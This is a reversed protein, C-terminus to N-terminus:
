EIKHKNILDNMMNKDRQLMLESDAKRHRLQEGKDNQIKHLLVQLDKEQRQQTLYKVNHVKEILKFRLEEM